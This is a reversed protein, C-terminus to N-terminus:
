GQEELKERRADLVTALQTGPTNILRVFTQAPALMTGLLKALLEERTPLDALAKMDDKELRRNELVGVKVEVKERDKFFKVLAKAVGPANEGGVVIATPGALQDDLEPLEREKAALRLISNKVVHFEADHKALSQRLEATEDVSLRNFDTLFVYDSKDLHAGVEEVLFQKESRM